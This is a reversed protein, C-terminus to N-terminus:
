MWHKFDWNLAFDKLHAKEGTKRVLTQSRLVSSSWAQEVSWSYTPGDGDANAEAVLNM